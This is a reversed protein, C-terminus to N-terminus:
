SHSRNGLYDGSEILKASAIEGHYVYIWCEIEEGHELIVNCETRVFLSVEHENRHIGEYHDLAALISEDDPLELVEGIIRRDCDADLIAGPYKGLDYLHGRAYAAGIRPLRQVLGELDPPALEPRLTGYVFLYEAM